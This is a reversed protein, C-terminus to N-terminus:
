APQWSCYKVLAKLALIGDVVTLKKGDARTRAAYSM